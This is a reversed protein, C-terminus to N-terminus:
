LGKKRACLAAQRSRLTSSSDPGWLSAISSDAQLPALLLGAAAGRQPLLARVAGPRKSPRGASGHGSAQHAPPIKPRRGLAAIPTWARSRGRGTPCPPLPCLQRPPPQRGSARPPTLPPHFPPAPHGAQKNMSAGSGPNNTPARPNPTHDTHDPSSSPM